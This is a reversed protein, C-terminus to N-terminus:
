RRLTEFVRSMRGGMISLVICIVAYLLGFHLAEWQALWCDPENKVATRWFLSLGLPIVAFHIVSFILGALVCRKGSTEPRGAGGWGILAGLALPLVFHLPIAVPGMGVSYGAADYQWTGVTVAWVAIWCVLFLLSATRHTKIDQWFKRM